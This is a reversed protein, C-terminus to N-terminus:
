SDSICELSNRNIMAHGDDIDHETEMVFRLGTLAAEFIFDVTPRLRGARGDSDGADHCLKAFLLNKHSFPSSSAFRGDLIMEPTIQLVTLPWLLDTIEPIKARRRGTHAFKGLREDLSHDRLERCDVFANASVALVVIKM